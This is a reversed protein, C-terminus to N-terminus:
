LERGSAVDVQVTWVRSGDASRLRIEHVLRGNFDITAARVSKAGYKAQVMAVAQDLSLNSQFITASVSRTQERSHPWSKADIVAAWGFTAVSVAVVMLRTNNM